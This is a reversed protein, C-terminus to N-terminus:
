PYLNRGIEIKTIKEKRSHKRSKDMKELNKKM